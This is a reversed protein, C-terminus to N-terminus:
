QEETEGGRERQRLSGCVGIYLCSSFVRVDGSVGDVLSLSHSLSVQWANKLVSHSVDILYNHEDDNLKDHDPEAM